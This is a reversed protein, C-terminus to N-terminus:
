KITLLIAVGCVADAAIVVSLMVCLLAYRQISIASHLTKTMVSVDPQPDSSHYRLEEVKNLLGRRTKNLM